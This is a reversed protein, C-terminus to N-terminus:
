DVRGEHTKLITLNRVFELWVGAADDSRPDFHRSITGIALAVSALLPRPPHWEPKQAVRQGIHGILKARDANLMGSDLLQRAGARALAHRTDPLKREAVALRNTTVRSSAPAREDFEPFAIPYTAGVSALRLVMTRERRSLPGPPGAPGSDDVPVAPGALDGHAATGFAVAVVALGSSASVFRRRSLGGAEPIEPLGDAARYPM